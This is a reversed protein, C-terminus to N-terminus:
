KVVRYAGVNAGAWSVAPDDIAEVWDLHGRVEWGPGYFDRYDRLISYDSDILYDIDRQEIYDWLRRQELFPVVSNNVLGDLNVVKRESMYGIIGANFSGVLVDPDTNEKLWEAAMVQESQWAFMGRQWVTWGNYAFGTLMVLAVLALAIRGRARSLLTDPDLAGCLIGLFIGAVAAAPMLYWSKITGRIFSHTILLALVALLPVCALRAATWARAARSGDALTLGLALGTLVGMLKGWGFVDTPITWIFLKLTDSIRLMLMDLSTYGSAELNARAVIGYASASSQSITGFTALNWILWPAVVLAAAVVSGAVVIPRKILKRLFVLHAYTVGVLIFNDTRALMLLGSLFGLTLIERTSFEERKLMRLYYWFYLCFCFLNLGTELGNVSHFIVSPNLLYAAAGLVGALRSKTLSVVTSFILIGAGVDLLGELALASHVPLSLSNGFVHYFPLLLLFWLPHFGNAPEVGDFSVGNGAAANRAIQFYYFSDDSVTKIILTPLDCVAISLRIAAALIVLIVMLIIFRKDSNLNNEM